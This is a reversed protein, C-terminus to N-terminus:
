SSCGREKRPTGAPTNCPWSPRTAWPASCSAQCEPALTESSASGRTSLSRGIALPSCRFCSGPTIVMRAGPPRLWSRLRALDQRYQHERLLQRQQGKLQGLFTKLRQAEKILAELDHHLRWSDAKIQKTHLILCRVAEKEALKALAQVKQQAEMEYEAVLQLFRSKVKHMQESHHVKMALLEKELERIRALQEAQLEQWPRLAEIDKDLVCIKAELRLLEERVEQEKVTYWAALQVKEKRIQELDFRNQDNLSIIANQFRLNRRAWYSLYVKNTDRIQQAEKDLFNNEWQFHRVRETYSKIHETLTVHEKQLFKEKESVYPLTSRPVKEPGKGKAKKGKPKAKKPAM